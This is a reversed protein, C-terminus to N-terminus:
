SDASIFKVIAENVEESKEIQAFHGCEDLLILRSNPIEACGLNAIEETTTKHLYKNPILSDNKGFIVLTRQNINKLQEFIPQEIMGAISNSIAVCYNYFEDDESIKIRDEILFNAEEPFKYFSLEYNSKIQEIEATLFNEPKTINKIIQIEENPFREFGAPAILILNDIKDPFNLACNIAIQGGMSHGILNVKNIGVSHIFNLIVDAYFEMSGPHIKKDSKGFGPLDIAICRFYNKLELINYKWAPFYSGLGHLFLIIKDFEGEDAYAIRYDDVQIFKTEFPYNLDSFTKPM